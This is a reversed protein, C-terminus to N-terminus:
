RFTFLDASAHCLTQAEAGDSRRQPTRGTRDTSFQLAVRGVNAITCTSRLETCPFTCCLRSGQTERHQPWREPDLDLLHQM